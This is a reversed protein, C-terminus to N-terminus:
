YVAAVDCAKNYLSLSNPSVDFLIWGNINKQRRITNIHQFHILETTESKKHQQYKQKRM